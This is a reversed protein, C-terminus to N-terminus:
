RWSRGSGNGAWRGPSKRSARRLHHHRQAVGAKGCEELIEPVVETPLVLQVLDVPKGVDAISRYAPIGLVTEESRHIPYVEGEYGTELINALQITGMKMPNNSAGCIAISSPNMLQKLPHM